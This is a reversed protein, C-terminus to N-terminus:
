NKMAHHEVRDRDVENGARTGGLELGLVAENLVEGVVVVVAATLSVVFADDVRLFKFMQDSGFLLISHLNQQFIQLSKSHRFLIKEVDIIQNFHLVHRLDSPAHCHQCFHYSSVNLDSTIEAVWELIGWFWDLNGWLGELYVGRLIECALLSYTLTLIKTDRYILM